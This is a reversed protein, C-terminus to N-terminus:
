EYPADTYRDDTSDLSGLLFREQSVRLNNGDRVINIVPYGMQTVWPDFKETMNIGM